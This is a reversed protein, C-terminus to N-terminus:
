KKAASEVMTKFASEGAKITALPGTMKVFVNGEKGQLIAALLGSNKKPVKTGGFPPGSMFTGETSVYTVKVEGITKTEEKDNRRDQFQGLWRQKNAEVTGSRAGFFFFTVEAASKDDTGPASLQAARMRSTPTEKKWAGPTEFEFESVKFTDAAVASFLFLLAVTLLKAISKM